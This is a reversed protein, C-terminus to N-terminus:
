RALNSIDRLQDGINGQFNDLLIPKPPTWTRIPKINSIINLNPIAERDENLEILSTKGFLNSPNDTESQSNLSGYDVKLNKQKFNLNPSTIHSSQNKIQTQRENDPTNTLYSAKNNNNIRLNKNHNMNNDSTKKSKMFNFIETFKKKFNVCEGADYSLVKECAEYKLKDCNEESGVKMTKCQKNKPSSEDFQSDTGKFFYQMSIEKTIFEMNDTSFYTELLYKDDEILGFTQKYNLIKNSKLFEDFNFNFEFMEQCVKCKILKQKKDEINQSVSAMEENLQYSINIFIIYLLFFVLIRKM